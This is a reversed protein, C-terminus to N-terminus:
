AGGNIIVDKEIAGDKQMPVFPSNEVV